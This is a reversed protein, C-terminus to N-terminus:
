VRHVCPIVHPPADGEEPHYIHWGYSDLKRVQFSFSSWVAPPWIKRVLSWERGVIGSFIGRESSVSTEMLWGSKLGAAWLVALLPLAMLFASPLCGPPPCGLVGWSSVPQSQVWEGQETNSRPFYSRSGKPTFLSIYPFCVIHGQMPFPLPTWLSPHEALVQYDNRARKKIRLGPCM